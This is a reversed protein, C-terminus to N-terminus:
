STFYIKERVRALYSAWFQFYVNLYSFHTENWNICAILFSRQNNITFYFCLWVTFRPQMSCDPNKKKISSSSFRCHKSYFKAAAKFLVSMWSTFTLFGWNFKEKSSMSLRWNSRLPWLFTWLLILANLVGSLSFNRIRPTIFVVRELDRKLARSIIQIQLDM